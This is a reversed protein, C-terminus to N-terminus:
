IGSQSSIMLDDLKRQLQVLFKLLDYLGDMWGNGKEFECWPVV